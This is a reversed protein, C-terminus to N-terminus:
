QLQDQVENFVLDEVWAYAQEQGPRNFLVMLIVWKMQELDIEEAELAMVRELVLERTVPDLVGSQELFLVFGRAELDIKNQEQSCYIRTSTSAGLATVSAGDQSKLTALDELWSFAKSIEGRPFGAQSLEAMLVDQDPRFEPEEDMYNEFLYMLVDIVNEKM